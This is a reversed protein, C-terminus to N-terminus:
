DLCRLLAMRWTIRVVSWIHHIICLIKRALVVVAKKKGRRAAVRLYFLRLRSDRARTVAHAVQVMMRRLNKSGSKVRGTL